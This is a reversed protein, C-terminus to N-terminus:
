QVLNTNSNPFNQQLQDFTFDLNGDISLEQRIVQDVDCEIGEAQLSDLTLDIDNPFMQLQGGMQQQQQMNVTNVNAVNGMFNSTNMQLSTPSGSIRPVQLQKTQPQQLAQRLLSNDTGVSLGVRNVPAHQQQQSQVARQLQPSRQPQQSPQQQQQVVNLSNTNRFASHNNLTFDLNRGQNQMGLGTTSLMPNDGMIPEPQYLGMSSNLEDLDLFERTESMQGNQITTSIINHQPSSRLTEPYPPPAPLNSGFQLNNYGNSQQSTPQPGFQGLTQGVNNFSSVNPVNTLTTFTPPMPSNRSGGGGNMADFQDGTFASMCPSMNGPELKMMDAMSDTLSDAFRDQGSNNFPASLNSSSGMDNWPIPSMPPVQNEHLDPEYVASIPSLRGCSSANSSARPRFHEPSLQHHLPSDVWGDSSAPSGELAQRLQEVKKKVRGRKKEYAKTDMSTARRRPSKGPKADPNIVWWSSKGTGENQIRMFRSHLSLNHRISNQMDNM